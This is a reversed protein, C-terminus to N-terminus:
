DCDCERSIGVDCGPSGDDGVGVARLAALGICVAGTGELAGACRKDIPARREIMTGSESLFLSDERDCHGIPVYGCTESTWKEQEIMLERRVEFLYRM